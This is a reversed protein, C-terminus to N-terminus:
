GKPESSLSRIYHIIAWRDAETIMFGLPPHRKLGFTITYFLKGDTQKQVQLNKLDTPLPYFSQGVTGNGDGRPGHCMVCYYGYVESGRRVSEQNFHVPSRLKEPNAERLVHLGGTIPITKPPMEPMETKYTRLAEQEKMRGYDCGCFLSMASSVVVIFIIWKLSVKM